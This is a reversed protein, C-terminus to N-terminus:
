YIGNRKREKMGLLGLLGTVLFFLGLGWVGPGRFGLGFAQKQSHVATVEVLAGRHRRRDREM